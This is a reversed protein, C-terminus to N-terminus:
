ELRVFANTEINNWYKELSKSMQKSPRAGTIANHHVCTRVRNAIFENIEPM